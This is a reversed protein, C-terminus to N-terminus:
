QRQLRHQLVGDLLLSGNAGPADLTWKSPLLEVFHSAPSGITHKTSIVVQAKTVSIQLSLQSMERDKWEPVSSDGSGNGM